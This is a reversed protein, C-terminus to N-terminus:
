HGCIFSSTEGARMIVVTTVFALTFSSPKAGSRQHTAITLAEETMSACFPAAGRMDARLLIAPVTTRRVSAGDIDAAALGDGRNDGALAGLRGPGSWARLDQCDELAGM